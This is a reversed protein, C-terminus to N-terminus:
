AKVFVAIAGDVVTDSSGEDVVGVNGVLVDTVAGADSCGVNM